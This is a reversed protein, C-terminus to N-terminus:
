RSIHGGPKTLQKIHKLFRGFPIKSVYSLRTHGQDKVGFHVMEHGHVM